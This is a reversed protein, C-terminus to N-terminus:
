CKFLYDRERERELEATQLLNRFYRSCPSPPEREGKEILSLRGAIEHDTLLPYADNM